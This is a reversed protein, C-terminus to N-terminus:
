HIDVPCVFVREKVEVIEEGPVSFEGQLRIDASSSGIMVQFRGPEVSLKLEEDYYALQNIALHFTIAREEGPQLSVRVFGKLEKVPRPLSAFEDRIYLQVVEDGAVKGINKLIMSIDFVEGPLASERSLTLGSYSFNTYSLGHGFWYLPTVAENVYDGYINSRM